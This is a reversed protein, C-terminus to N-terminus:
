TETSDGLRITIKRNQKIATDLINDLRHKGVYGGVPNFEGEAEIIFHSRVDDLVRELNDANDRFTVHGQFVGDVEYTLSKEVGEVDETIEYNAIILPTEGEYLYLDSSSMELLAERIENGAMSIFKSEKELMTILDKAERQNELVSYRVINTGGYEGDLVALDEWLELYVHNDESDDPVAQIDFRGWDNKHLQLFLADKFPPVNSVFNSQIYSVAEEQTNHRVGDHTYFAM